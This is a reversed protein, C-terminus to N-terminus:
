KTISIILCFYFFLKLIKVQQQQNQPVLVRVVQNMNANNMNANNMNAANMNPSNMTNGANMNPGPMRLQNSPGRQQNGHQMYMPHQQPRM